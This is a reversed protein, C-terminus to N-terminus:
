SKTRLNASIWIAAALIVGGAILFGLLQFALGIIIGVAFLAALVFVVVNVFPM